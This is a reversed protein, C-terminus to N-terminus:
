YYSCSEVIIANTGDAGESVYCCPEKIVEHMGYYVEHGIIIRADEVEKTEVFPKLPPKGNWPNYYGYV